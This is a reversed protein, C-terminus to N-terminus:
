SRRRGPSWPSGPAGRPKATGRSWRRRHGVGAGDQDDLVVERDGGAIIATRPWAPWWATWAGAASAARFIRSLRGTSTTSVSRLIGPISPIASSASTAWRQGPIGTTMTVAWPVTGTATSAIFVPAASKTRLGKSRSSSTKTRSLASAWARWASALGGLGAARAIAPAEPDAAGVPSCGKTPAESAMSAAGRWAGCPPGSRRWRGGRRRSRCRCSGRRWPGGRNDRPALPGEDGDVAPRERLGEQLALEEAVLLPREGARHRGLGTPHREGLAPREEEVLNALHRQRHLDLQQAQELLAGVLGEAAGLGSGGVHAEDGGGM